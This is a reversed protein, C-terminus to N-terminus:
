FLEGDKPVSVRPVSVKPVPVSVRSSVKTAGGAATGKKKSAAKQRGGWLLYDKVMRLQHASAVPQIYERPMCNVYFAIGEQFYVKSGTLRLKYESIDDNRFYWVHLNGLYKSSRRQIRGVFQIVTSPVTPVDFVVANNVFTWNASETKAKSLVVFMSRRSCQGETVEDVRRASQEVVGCLQGRCDVIKAARLFHLLVDISTYTECYILASEGRAAFERCLAVLRDVKASGYLGFTGDGGLAGNVVSQLYIFRSSHRDLDKVSKVVPASSLGGSLVSRLWEEDSLGEGSLFGRAIMTYLSEEVPGMVYDVMHINIDVSEVGTVLLSSCYASLANVDKYDTVVAVRKLGGDPRRGIVKQEVRCFDKQFGKYSPFFRPYVFNVISYTDMCSKSLITATVGWLAYTGNMLLKMTKTLSISPTKFAHIEDIITLIKVDQLLYLERLQAYSTKVHTHKAYIVDYRAAIDSLSTGGGLSELVADWSVCRLHTHRAADTAWVKKDYANKPTFVVAVSVVGRSLLYAYSYLCQMTKGNGVSDLLIARRRRVLQRCADLQFEFLRFDDKLYRGM